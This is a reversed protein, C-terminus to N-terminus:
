LFGAPIQLLLAAALLQGGVLGIIEFSGFRRAAGALLRLRVARFL